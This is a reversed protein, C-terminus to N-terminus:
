QMGDIIYHNGDKRSGFISVDVGRRAQYVGPMTALLDQIGTVPMQEIEARTLIRRTPHDIDYIPTIPISTQVAPVIQVGDIIYLTGSTRTDGINLMQRGCPLYMDRSPQDALPIQYIVFMLLMTNIMTKM